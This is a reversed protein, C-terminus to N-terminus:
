VDSCLYTISNSKPIQFKLSFKSSSIYIQSYSFQWCISPTKLWLVPHSWWPPLHLTFFLHLLGSSQLMDMNEPCSPSPFSYVSPLLFDPHLHLEQFVPSFLSYILPSLNDDIVCSILVSFCVSWGVHDPTAQYSQTRLALVALQHLYIM